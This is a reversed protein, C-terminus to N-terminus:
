VSKDEPYTSRAAACDFRRERGGKSRLELSRLYDEVSGFHQRQLEREQNELYMRSRNMDEATRSLKAFLGFAERITAPYDYLRRPVQIVYVEPLSKRILNAEFESDDVFVIADLGINLTRAIQLLNEAKDSWNVAKVALDSSRIVMDPHSELVQDVDEPNNKSCLGLLVGQKRLALALTQVERFIAGEASTPSMQIGDIGDEGLVGKWLTDDCDFVLAKRGKGLTAYLLPAM